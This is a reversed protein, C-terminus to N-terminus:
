LSSQRLYYSDDCTISFRILPYTQSCVDVEYVMSSLLIRSLYCSLLHCIDSILAVWGALITQEVVYPQNPAYKVIIPLRNRHNRM